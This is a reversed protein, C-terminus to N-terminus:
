CCCGALDDLIPCDPRKIFQLSRVDAESYQRYGSDRLYVKPARDSEERIQLSGKYKNNIYGYFAYCTAM